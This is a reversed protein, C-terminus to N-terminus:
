IPSSPPPAAAGSSNSNRCCSLCLSPVAPCRPCVAASCAPVFTHAPEASFCCTSAQSARTATPGAAAAGGGLLDFAPPVCSEDFTYSATRSALAAPALKASGPGAQVPRLTFDSILTALRPRLRSVCRRWPTSSTPTPQRPAARTRPCCSRASRRRPRSSRLLLRRRCPPWFSSPPFCPPRLRLHPPPRRAARLRRQRTLTLRYSTSSLLPHARSCRPPPSCPWAPVRCPLRLSYSLQHRACLRPAPAIGGVKAPRRSPPPAPEAPAACDQWDERGHPAQVRPCSLSPLAPRPQMRWPPRVLPTAMSVPPGASRDGSRAWVELGRAAQLGGPRASFSTRPPVAPSSAHASAGPPQVASGAAWARQLLRGEQQPQRLPESLTGAEDCLRQHAAAAESALLAAPRRRKDM